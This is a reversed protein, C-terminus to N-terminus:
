LAVASSCYTKASRRAAIARHNCDRAACAPATISPSITMVVSWFAFPRAPMAWCRSRHAGHVLHPMPHQPLSQLLHGGHGSRADCSSQTRSASSHRASSSRCVTSPLPRHRCQRVGHSHHHLRDHRHVTTRTTLIYRFCGRSNKFSQDASSSPHIRCATTDSLSADPASVM